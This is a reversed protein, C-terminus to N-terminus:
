GKLHKARTKWAQKNKAQLKHLKLRMGGISAKYPDKSALEKQLGDWFYCLQLLVYTGYILVQYLHSPTSFSLSALSANTLLNQLYHLIQDNEAQLENEKNQNKQHFRLMVDVAASAM